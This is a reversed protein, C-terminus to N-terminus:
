FTWQWFIRLSSFLNIKLRISSNAFFLRNLPGIIVLSLYSRRIFYQCEVLIFLSSKMANQNNQLNILICYVLRSSKLFYFYFALTQGTEELLPQTTGESLSSQFERMRVKVPVEPIRSVWAALTVWAASALLLTRWRWRGVQVCCINDCLMTRQNTVFKYFVIILSICLHVTSNPQHYM